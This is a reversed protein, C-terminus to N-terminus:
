ENGNEESGNKEKEAKAIAAKARSVVYKTQKRYSYAFLVVLLVTLLTEENDEALQSVGAIEEFVKALLVLLFLSLFTRYTSNVESLTDIKEDKKSAQIYTDYEVYKVFVIKKLLPEVVLSGVRSVVMGIFYYLFLAVFVNSYLLNYRTTASVFVAFVVGPLLNNFINYASLKDLLEQM